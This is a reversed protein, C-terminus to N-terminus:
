PSVKQKRQAGTTTTSRKLVEPTIPITVKLPRSQAKSHMFKPMPRSKFSNAQAKIDDEMKKVKEERKRKYIESYDYQHLKTVSQCRSKSDFRNEARARSFEVSSWSRQILNPHPNYNENDSNKQNEAEFDLKKVSVSEILFSNTDMSFQFKGCDFPTGQDM